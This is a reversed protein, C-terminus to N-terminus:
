GCSMQFCGVLVPCSLLCAPMEGIAISTCSKNTFAVLDDVRGSADYGPASCLLVPTSAKVKFGSCFFCLKMMQVSVIIDNLKVHSWYVDFLAPVDPFIERLVPSSLLAFRM